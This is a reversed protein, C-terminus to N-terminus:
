GRCPRRGIPHMARHRPARRAPRRAAPRGPRLPTDPVTTGTPGPSSPGPPPPRRTTRGAGTVATSTRQHGTRDLARDADALVRDPDDLGTDGHREPEDFAGADGDRLEDADARHSAPIERTGDRDTAPETAPSQPQAAAPDVERPVKGSDPDFRFRRLQPLQSDDSPPQASM